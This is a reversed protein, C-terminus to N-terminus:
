VEVDLHVLRIFSINPFIANINCQFMNIWWASLVDFILCKILRFLWLHRALFPIEYKMHVIFGENNNMFERMNKDTRDAKM